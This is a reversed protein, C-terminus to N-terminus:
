YGLFDPRENRGAIRGGRDPSDCPAQRARLKADSKKVM